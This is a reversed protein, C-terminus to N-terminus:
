ELIVDAITVRVLPDLGTYASVEAMVSRQVAQALDRCNHGLRTVLTISVEAATGNVVASVGDAPLATKQSGLVQNAIGLLAQALDARLGVVGPVRQTCQAAVRAVVNDAVHFRVHGNSESGSM